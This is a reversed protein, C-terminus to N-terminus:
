GYRDCNEQRQQWGYREARGGVLSGDIVPVAIAEQGAIMLRGVVANRNITRDAARRVIGWAVPIIARPVIEAFGSKEVSAIIATTEAWAPSPSRDPSHPIAPLLGCVHPRDLIGTVDSISGIPRPTGSVRM